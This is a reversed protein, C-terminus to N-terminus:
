PGQLVTWTTQQTVAFWYVTGNQLTTFDNAGPVGVGAPFFGLWCQAQGAPCGTGSPSWRFIATVKQSIDNTASNDPSEFGKIANMADLNNKGGWAFLTWRFYLTYTVTPGSGSTYSFDNATGATSSPVTAVTVIVEVVGPSARSPATVTITTSNVVVVNTGAQAGFTVIAGAAFGTGTITVTTTSNNIPTNNPSLNSVTPTGTGTFTFLDGSTIPSTGGPGTVTVDVAGAPISAPAVASITTDNTVNFTTATAGFKVSTAGLFNLGTIVVITTQGAPGSVPNLSLVIPGDTYVYVDSATAASTGQDTDVTVHVSGAVHYPVTVTLQGSNVINVNTALASGFMVSNVNVFNSGYITVINGGDTTGSGPSVSTVTPGSVEDDLITLVATDNVGLTGGQPNSLTLHVTESGEFLVDDTIPIVFSEDLDGSAFHLTGSAATYDSGAFATGDSTAYDVNVSGSGGSRKVHVTISGDPENVVYTPLEFQITGTGDDDFITLQTTSQSGINSGGVSQLVFNVTQASEPTGDDTIPISCSHNSTNSSAFTITVDASTYDAVPTASGTSQDHCKVSASGSSGGTRKVVLSATLTGEVVSFTPSTFEFTGPGDDDIITVTSDSGTTGSDSPDQLHVKFQQNPEPAGDNNITVTFTKSTEGAAFNLTTLAKATFDGPSTASNDITLYKVSVASGLLGSRLVTVTVPGANEVVDYNSEDFAFSPPGDNDTIHLTTGSPSGITANTSGSQHVVSVLTFDITETGEVLADDFIPLGTNIGNKDITKSCPLPCLADFDVFGDIPNFGSIDAPTATGNFTIHYHVRQANTNGGTRKITIFVTQGETKTYSSTAFQVTGEGTVARAPVARGGLLLVMAAVIAAVVLVRRSIPRRAHTTLNSM